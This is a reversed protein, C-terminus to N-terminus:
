QNVPSFHAIIQKVAAKTRVQGSDIVFDACAQYLPQREALLRTLVAKPNAQQLLPRQKDHRTREWLREVGCSLYVVQGRTTLALRNDPNLVVGGGTALVIGDLATLEAIVKQERQRFGAEGEIEFITAISVGTQQELVKDSDYFTKHLTKALLKGITTKGAGMLGVLYINDSKM